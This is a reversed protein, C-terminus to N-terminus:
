SAAGLPFADDRGEERGDRHARRLRLVAYAAFVFSYILVSAVAQEGGRLAAPALMLMLHVYALAFFPYALRQVNKWTRAHMRHKAFGLSTVGLLTVLALLVLAVALASLVSPDLVGSVARSLYPELYKCMHGACLICAMISLEARIPRLWADLRSGKPLVGVFMVVTFLSLALMCRQVLPILVKWWEGLCGASGALYMAVVAASLAYFLIPAQRIPERLVLVAAVAAVLTCVFEM